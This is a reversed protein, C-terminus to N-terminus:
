KRLRDILNYVLGNGAIACIIVVPWDHISGGMYFHIATGHISAMCYVCGILPYYIFTPLKESAWEDVSELIKGTETAIRIGSCWLGILLLEILIM